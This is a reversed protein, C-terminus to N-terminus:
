FVAWWHIEATNSDDFYYGVTEHHLEIAAVCVHITVVALDINCHM